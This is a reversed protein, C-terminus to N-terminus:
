EKPNTLNNSIYDVELEVRRNPALCELLAARPAVDSCSTVQDTAGLGRVEVISSNLQLLKNLHAVVTDARKHSLNHNYAPKGLRDAYGVVKVAALNYHKLANAVAALKEQESPKLEASDFDFYIKREEMMMIAKIPDDNCPDASVEWKTRVCNGNKDVVTVQKSDRVVDFAAFSAVPLLAVAATTLFTIKTLAKM